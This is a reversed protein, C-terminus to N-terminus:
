KGKSWVIRNPQPLNTHRDYTSYSLILYSLIVVCGGLLVMVLAGRLRGVRYCGLGQLGVWAELAGM